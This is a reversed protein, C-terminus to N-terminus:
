QEMEIARVFNFDDAIIEDSVIMLNVKSFNLWSCCLNFIPPAKEPYNKPLQFHLKIPPLHAVDVSTNDRQQLGKVQCGSADLSIQVSSDPLDVCVSMIGNVHNNENMRWKFEEESKKMADFLELEDGQEGPSPDEM